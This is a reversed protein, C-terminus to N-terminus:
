STTCYRLEVELGRGCARVREFLQKKGMVGQPMLGATSHSSTATTNDDSEENFYILIYM